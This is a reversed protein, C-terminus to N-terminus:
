CVKETNTLVGPDRLLPGTVAGTPRSAQGSAQGSFPYSVVVAGGGHLLRLLYLNSGQTLFIGQFLAHCGVRTNKGRWGEASGALTLTVMEGWSQLLFYRRIEMRFAGLVQAIPGVWLFTVPLFSTSRQPLSPSPKRSSLASTPDELKFPLPSFATLQLLGHCGM